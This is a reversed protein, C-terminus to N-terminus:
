YRVPEENNFDRDTDFMDLVVGTEKQRYGFRSGRGSNYNEREIKNENIQNDEKAKNDSCTVVLITLLLITLSKIM